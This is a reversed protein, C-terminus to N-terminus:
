KRSNKKKIIIVTDYLIRSKHLDHIVFNNKSRMEDLAEMTLITEYVEILIAGPKMHNLIRKVLKKYLLDDMIPHYMYIIDFNGYGNYKFANCCEVDLGSEKAYDAYVQQYEIGCSKKVLKSAIAVKDGAGCGVDLFSKIKPHKKLVYSLVKLFNESDYPIYNWGGDELSKETWSPYDLIDKVYVDEVGQNKQRLSVEAYIEMRDKTSLGSLNRISFKKGSLLLNILEQIKSDSSSNHNM